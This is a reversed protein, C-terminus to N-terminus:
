YGETVSSGSLGLACKYFEVSRSLDFVPIVPGVHLNVLSM